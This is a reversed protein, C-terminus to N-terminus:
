MSFYSLCTLVFVGFMQLQPLHTETLRYLPRMNTWVIKRKREYQHLKETNKAEMFKTLLSLVGRQVLVKEYREVDVFNEFKM